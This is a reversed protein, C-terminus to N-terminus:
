PINLKSFFTKSDNTIAKLLRVLPFHMYLFNYATDCSKLFIDHVKQFHKSESLYM